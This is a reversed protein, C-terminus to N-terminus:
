GAKGTLRRAKTRQDLLYWAKAKNESIRQYQQKIAEWEEREHACLRGKEGKRLLTTYRRQLKPPLLADAIARLAEDDLLAWGALEATLEPSREDPLPPAATELALLILEGVDCQALRAM